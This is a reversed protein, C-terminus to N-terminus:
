ALNAFLAILIKGSNTIKHLNVVASKIALIKILQRPRALPM